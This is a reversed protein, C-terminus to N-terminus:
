WNTLRLAEWLVELLLQADKLLGLCGMSGFDVLLVGGRTRNAAQCQGSGQQCLRSSGENLRESARDCQQQQQQQQLFQQLLPPLSCGGQQQQQWAPQSHMDAALWFGTLQV